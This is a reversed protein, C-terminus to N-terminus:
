PRGRGPSRGGRQGNNLRNNGSNPALYGNNSASTARYARTIRAPPSDGQNNNVEGPLNLVQGAFVVDSSLENCERVRQSTTGARDAVGNITDGPQVEYSTTTCNAAQAWREDVSMLTDVQLGNASLHQAPNSILISQALLILLLAGSIAAGRCILNPTSINLTLM